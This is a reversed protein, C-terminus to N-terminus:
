RSEEVSAARQPYPIGMPHRSDPNRHTDKLHIFPILSPFPKNTIKDTRRNNQHKGM